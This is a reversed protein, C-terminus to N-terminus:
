GRGATPLVLDALRAPDVAAVYEHGEPIWRTRWLDLEEASDGQDTNRAVARAGAAEPTM